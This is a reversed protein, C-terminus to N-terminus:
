IMYCRKSCGFAIVHVCQFGLADASRFIASANGVDNLGEIVLCVSYTRNKVANCFRDKRTEMIYPDLAELVDSSTISSEGVKYADLYPFLNVNRLQEADDVSTQSWSFKREMKFFRYMNVRNATLLKEFADTALEDVENSEADVCGTAALSVAAGGSSHRILRDERKGWVFGLEVILTDLCM